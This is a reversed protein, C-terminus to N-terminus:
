KKVNLARLGTFKTDVDAYTVITPSASNLDTICSAEMTRCQQIFSGLSANMDIADQATIPYHINDQTFDIATTVAVTAAYQALNAILAQSERDTHLPIAVSGATTFTTGNTVTNWRVQASYALLLAKTEAPQGYTRMDTRPDSPPTGIKILTSLSQDYPIIRTGVGYQSPDVIQAVDHWGAVISNNCYLLLM